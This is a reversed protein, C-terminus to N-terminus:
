IVKNVLVKFSLNCFLHNSLPKTYLNSLFILILSVKISSTPLAEALFASSLAVGRDWGNKSHGAHHIIEKQIDETSVDPSEM